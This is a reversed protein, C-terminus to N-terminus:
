PSGSFIRESWPLFQSLSKIVSRQLSIPVSYSLFLGYSSCVLLLTFPEMGGQDTHQSCEGSHFDLQFFLIPANTWALLQVWFEAMPKLRYKRIYLLCGKREILTVKPNAGFDTLVDADVLYTCLNLSHM